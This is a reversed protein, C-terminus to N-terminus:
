EIGEAELTIDKDENEDKLAKFFELLARMMDNAVNSQEIQEISYSLEDEEDKTVFIEIIKRKEERRELM